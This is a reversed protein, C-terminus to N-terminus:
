LTHESPDDWFFAEPDYVAPVPHTTPNVFGGLYLQEKTPVNHLGNKVIIPQPYNSVTGQFFPGEQVHVKIMNWVAHTRELADPEVNAGELLRWLKAVASGKAPMIRPPKRKWPDVNKESTYAPTGRSAYMQGQLPAWRSNEMPVLWQPFILCNPGDGVEWNQHTMYRGAAWEDNVGDPPVPSTTADIGIAKWDRSRQNSTQVMDDTADGALELRLKLKSGDPFERMGDGDTDKLGLQDLLKEAQDPDFGVYSDRWQRYVKGGKDDQFELAKPSMTGTTPDGTNFYVATRADSRKYALSLARAFRSDRFLTRYKEERYDQNLYFVSATGSGSDWMLLDIGAKRKGKNLTSVDALTIGNFNGMCFDVRGSGIQVKGVEPDAVATMSLEDIYPLQDGAATVVYYYPNREWTLSRGETYSKLRFGALTPCKPNHRYSCNREWLGGVSSWNKPVKKNYRPHYQKVFHAPVIWVPGRGEFGNPWCALRDAVLPAPTDFKMVWTHDDTATLKCITGKGSKCDDPVTEFTYDDFNAMDNWWFLVDATTVPHGDSWKMGKRLSFQWETADANSKWKNVLGPGVTNGDNLFRLPSYGYFYKAITSDSTATVNLKLTGGYNGKRVWSHPLVYPEAPLRQEVPPLKGAKVLETLAPAESLKAPKTLPTTASGKDLKAPSADDTTGGGTGAGPKGGNGAENGEAVSPSASATAGNADGSDSGCGALM